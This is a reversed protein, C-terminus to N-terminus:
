RRAPPRACPPHRLRYRTNYEIKALDHSSTVWIALGIPQGAARAQRTRAGSGQKLGHVPTPPQGNLVNDIIHSSETLEIDPQGQHQGDRIHSMDAPAREIDGAEATAEASATVKTTKRAQCSAADKKRRAEHTTRLSAAM